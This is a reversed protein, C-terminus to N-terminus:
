PRKEFRFAQGECYPHLQEGMKSGASRNETSRVYRLDTDAGGERSAAPPYEDRDYGPKTPFEAGQKRHWQDRHRRADKPDWHLLAPQGGRIADWAHDLIHRHRRNNLNVIVSRDITKCSEGQLWEKVPAGAHTVALGSTSAVIVIAALATLRTM